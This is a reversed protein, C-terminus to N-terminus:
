GQPTEHVIFFSKNVIVQFKGEDYTVRAKPAMEQQSSNRTTSLMAATRDPVAALSTLPALHPPPATVPRDRLLQFPTLQQQNFLQSSSPQQSTFIQQEPLESTNNFILSSQFDRFANQRDRMWQFVDSTRSADDHETKEAAEEAAQQKQLHYQNMGQSQQQSEGRRTSM